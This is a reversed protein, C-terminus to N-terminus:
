NSYRRLWAELNRAEEAPTTAHPVPNVHTPQENRHLLIVGAVTAAVGVAALWPVTDTVRRHGVGGLTVTPEAELAAALEAATPRERPDHRLCWAVLDQDAEDLLEQLVVGLSYVDAAPGVPLGEAQEPALYRLTGLVTGAQTLMAEEAARAIGFDAIKVDGSASRLLNAPKLDRHVVGQRHAYALAQALQAAEGRALREGELTGPLLLEMVICPRGDLETVDYTRVIHPHDLRAAIRAERLFRKRFEPKGALHEALVKLAVPRDLGEQRGAYVVAMGGRGLENNVGYPSV